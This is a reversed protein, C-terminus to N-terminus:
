CTTINIDILWIAERCIYMKDCSSSDVEYMAAFKQLDGICDADTSLKLCKFQGQVSKM